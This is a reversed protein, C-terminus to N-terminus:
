LLPLIVEFDGSGDSTVTEALTGDVYLKVQTNPSVTGTISPTNDSTINDSSSIGLDTETKLTPIVPAQPTTQVTVSLPPSNGSTDGAANEIRVYFVYDGSTLASTPSITYSGDSATTVSAVISPSGGDKEAYLYVTGTSPSVTGTFTPTTVNTLNDTNSPGADSGADLDPGSSPTSPPSITFTISDTGAYINGILDTGSVTVSYAGAALTPTSTNWNYTYNNTSGVRTMAVNTVVGTIYISPTATMAESFSATITVTNTPSLTTSIINDAANDTLTVTPLTADLTFTISETGSYPNSALDTGSVTATFTGDNLSSGSLDWNFTYSNTGSIQTMAGSVSAGSISVIPTASMSENFVATITVSSSLGLLNDDDNDSLTTTPATNDVTLTISDTGAYTNGAPDTGTVTVTYSGETVSSIDWDYTWTTSSTATLAVNDISSGITITPATAMAENFTATVTINSDASKVTNDSDSSTIAVTPATSDVTFTISQTGSVYANGILDTGSVIASYTGDSLTGSSTDWTFTYSNTGSVPTMIVNTVIGTISITPTATMAESFGATITVVQSISVLNDSDTDTLTVTPATTDLTFTISDTGSYANGALDAGAVTAYYSGDPPISGSDVDWSYEYRDTGIVKVQGSNSGGSDSLPAGIVAIGNASLEVHAGLADGATGVINSGIQSATTGDWKYLRAYGATSNADYAGVIIKDGNGNISSSYGFKDGNTSGAISAKYTWSATGSILQYSFIHVRGIGSSEIDPAGAIITQGDNSISVSTGFSQGTGAPDTIDTGVQTWASGDWDYVRVIGNNNGYSRLGVVIRKGNKTLSIGNYGSGLWATNPNDPPGLIDSGMQIYNSGNWEFTRARGKGNDHLGHSLAIISGDYSFDVSGNETADLTGANNDNLTERLAWTSGSLTYIKYIFNNNNGREGVVIVSGDGSIGVPRGLDNSSTGAIENGLQEWQKGNWQYVRAFSSSSGYPGGVIIRNGSDSIDSTWGLKGGAGDDILQGIQNIPTSSFKSMVTNTVIGSISLTSTTSLTESFYASISVVGTSGIIPDTNDSVLLVGPATNDVTLTISDTGAYTNGAPDTGTVTVTYSGETVSSIDWDYTWTTSSTATLAVNDISSGITITPATAMAENFTATVTINSDASKVTNDSDSSTIAVTPATSDVTFTISQTGSVYANGILDTGSVIASYTGDSLTGSSTDWTFTYSNTGSVPTMIVNTVIGTISITPTATMAESFGATITVVQSISVLNDSDTDTLTVTPATTDLTFTISDTGSYAISTASATGAVTAFYDGDPPTTGSDVDWIYEYKQTPSADYIGVVGQSSLDPRGILISNGDSSLEVAFAFESETNSPDSEDEYIEGIQTFTSTSTPTYEYLLAKGPDSVNYQNDSKGDRDGILVRNGDSSISLAYTPMAHSTLDFNADLTGKLTFTSTLSTPTYDYFYILPQLKTENIEGPMDGIVLRSGDDSLKAWRGFRTTNFGYSQIPVNVPNDITDILTWSTSGSPTYDLIYVKGHRDGSSHSISLRSGDSTLSVDIGFEASYVSSGEIINLM